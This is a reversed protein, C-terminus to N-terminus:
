HSVSGAPLFDVLIYNFQVASDILQICNVDISKKIWWCCPACVRRLNM